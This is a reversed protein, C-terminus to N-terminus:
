ALFLIMVNTCIKIDRNHMKSFRQISQGTMDAMTAYTKAVDHGKKKSDMAMYSAGKPESFTIKETDGKTPTYEIEGEANVVLRGSKMARIISRKAAVFSEKDEDDMGAPDVDLDMADVFRDFEAECIETAIKQDKIQVVKESEM